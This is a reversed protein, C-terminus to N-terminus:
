YMNVECVKVKDYAKHTGSFRIYLVVNRKGFKYGCILRFKNGGINFVVRNFQKGECTVIDATRFSRLIDSPIEWDCYKLQYYFDQFAKYM